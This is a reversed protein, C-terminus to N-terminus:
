KYYNAFALFLIYTINISKFFNAEVLEKLINNTVAYTIEYEGSLLNALYFSPV